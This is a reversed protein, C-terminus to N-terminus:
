KSYELIQIRRSICFGRFFIWAIKKEVVIKLTAKTSNNMKSLMKDALYLISLTIFSKIFSDMQQLPLFFM